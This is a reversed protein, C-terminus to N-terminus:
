NGSTDVTPTPITQTTPVPTRSATPIVILPPVITLTATSPTPFPVDVIIQRLDEVRFNAACTFDNRNIWGEVNTQPVVTRLWQAADDRGNVVLDFGQPVTSLVNTTISPLTYISATANRPQCVPDILAINLTQQATSGSAARANLTVAFDDEPLITLPLSGQGGPPVVLPASVLKELGTFSISAAGPVDYTMTLNQVVHRIVPQPTIAFDRIIVPVYITVTRSDSAIKSGDQSSAILSVVVDGSIESTDLEAGTMSAAPQDVLREEENLRVTVFEADRVAWSLRLKDGQAIQTTGNDVTFRDIVPDPTRGLLSILGFVVLLVALVLGGVMAFSAWLPLPPKDVVQGRVAATFHATELSQAVLDFPYEQTAGFLRRQSPKVQCGIQMRQGPSLTLQSPRIVFNMQQSPDRGTIQLPLPASGQNHVHLQFLDGSGFRKSALAMGFGGFPLITVKFPVELQSDPRDRLQVTIRANYIGPASDSRRPPKINVVVTTNDGPDLEILPRNVRAWGDPFGVVQITYMQTTKGTNFVNVEASTYSGPAIAIPPPQVELRFLSTESEARQTDELVSNMQMTPDDDLAFYLMRMYGIQIEEGGNMQVPEGPNVRVGDVYTGNVSELDNLYVKDDEVNFAFHYRSITDTDLVITNGSSRGVSVKDETLPFNEIKGDPWFVDLRGYAM